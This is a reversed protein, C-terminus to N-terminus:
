FLGQNIHIAVGGLLAINHFFNSVSFREIYVGISGAGIKIGAGGTADTDRNLQLTWHSTIGATLGGKPEM